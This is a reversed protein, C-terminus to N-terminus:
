HRNPARGPTMGNGPRLMPPPLPASSLPNEGGALQNARLALEVARNGNRLSAQSSTALLWALNNRAEAYDPKIQLATQFQTIAEDAQGKQFLADGLNNHAEAYDPEIQLATQYHVIAEDVRGKQLLANGLNNHAKANAPEIQLATQLQDIAEDVRGKQLLANGLNDLAVAYDPRIQLAAQYQAIAENVRRDKVLINGLNNYAIYNGSTCAVTHGWLLEGNRWYSTQIRACFILAVLIAASFGSFLWSRYRWGVGLSGASWILALYLGIQPLYTYRDAHAQGGVQVLGIVPILMGLYWLWGMLLYPHKRRWLFAGASVAALLLLALVIEWYPLGSRPYRYLVALDTPYFMQRLYVIYSVAANGFRLSAPVPGIANKQAMMTAVCVAGSLALLPTKELIPRWHVAQSKSSDGNGAVALAPAPPAFRNLPWFDLLLLVFPLTVLMPKSLLGLAFLFVVLLYRGPSFPRRVYRVYALLTLMFFLGSLVDKREAVWAVSEVRLPHIAFVAAVLASRWLEGTMQRLGLFLLIVSGTHLLVNTLHHGGANLGYLSCDLMHSMITLPHWNFAVVHTFAWEIGKLNLGQIVTPNEYVYSDDDYNVFGYHRTQGFVM